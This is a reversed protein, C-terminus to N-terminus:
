TENRAHHEKLDGLPRFTSCLGVVREHQAHRYDAWPDDVKKVIRVFGSKETVTCDQRIVTYTPTVLGYDEEAEDLLDALRKRWEMPMAQIALKPLVLYPTRNLITDFPCSEYMM